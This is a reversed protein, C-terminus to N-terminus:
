NDGKDLSSKDIVTKAGKTYKKEVFTVKANCSDAIGLIMNRTEEVAKALNEKNKSFEEATVKANSSVLALVDENEFDKPFLGVEDSSPTMLTYGQPIVVVNFDDEGFEFLLGDSSVIPTIKEMDIMYKIEYPIFVRLVNKNLWSSIGGKDAIAIEPKREAKVTVPSYEGKAIIIDKARDANDIMDQMAKAEEVLAFAKDKELQLDAIKKQEIIKLAEREEAGMAYVFGATAVMGVTAIAIFSKIKKKLSKNKKRLPEKDKLSEKKKEKMEELKKLVEEKFNKLKEM